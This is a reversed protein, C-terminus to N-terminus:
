QLIRVTWMCTNMNGYGSTETLSRMMSPCVQRWARSDTLSKCRSTVIVVSGTGWEAPLLADLQGTTQVNDLVLLVKRDMVFEKLKNSLM